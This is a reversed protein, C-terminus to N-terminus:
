QTSQPTIFFKYVLYVLAGLLALSILSALLQLVSRLLSFALSIGVLVVVVKGVKPLSNFWNAVQQAMVKLPPSDPFGPQTFKVPHEQERHREMELEQFRREYDQNDPPNM